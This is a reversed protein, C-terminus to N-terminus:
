TGFYKKWASRLEDYHTEIIEEVQKIQARSLQYNNSLEIEPELWFKAEGDSCYVHVHM